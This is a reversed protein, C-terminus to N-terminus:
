ADSRSAVQPPNSSCDIRFQTAHLRRELWSAEPAHLQVTLQRRRPDSQLRLASHQKWHQLLLDQVAAWDLERGLYRSHLSLVAAIAASKMEDSVPLLLFFCGDHTHGGARAGIKVEDGYEDDDSPDSSLPEGLLAALEELVARPVGAGRLENGEHTLLTVHHRTWWCHHDIM